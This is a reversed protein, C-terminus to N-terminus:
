GQMARQSLQLRLAYTHQLQAILWTAHPAQQLAQRIQVASADLAQLGPTLAPSANAPPMQALAADYERAMAAVQQQVMLALPDVSAQPSWRVVGLALLGIAAALAWPARHRRSLARAHAPSAAGIRAAIGPWLDHAPQAERPLQRLANHLDSASM